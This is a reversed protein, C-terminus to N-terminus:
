DLINDQNKNIRGIRNLAKKTVAVGKKLLFQPTEEIYFILLLLEIIAPVTVLCIWNIRWSDIVSFFFTIIMAGLTFFIQVFVSYKQRREDGVVEGFFFFCINIAADCGCGSFFLGVAVMYINVSCAVIVTGLTCIGWSVVMSSKRGFNDSFFSIAIYGIFAGFYTCSSM